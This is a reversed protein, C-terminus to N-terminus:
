KMVTHSYPFGFTYRPANIAAKRQQIYCTKMKMSTLKIHTAGNRKAGNYKTNSLGSLITSYKNVEEMATTSRASNDGLCDHQLVHRVQFYTSWKM